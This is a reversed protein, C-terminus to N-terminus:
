LWYPFELKIVNLQGTTFSDDSLGDPENVNNPYM